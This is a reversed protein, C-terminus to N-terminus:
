ILEGPKVESIKLYNMSTLRYVLQVGDPLEDLIDNVVNMEDVPVKLTCGIYCYRPTGKEITNTNTRVM